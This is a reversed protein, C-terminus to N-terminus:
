FGFIKQLLTLSLTYNPFHKLNLKVQIERLSWDRSCDDEQFLRRWSIRNLHTTVCSSYKCNPAMKHFGTLGFWNNTLGLLKTSDKALSWEGKLLSWRQSIRISNTRLWFSYKFFTMLSVFQTWWNRRIWGHRLWLKVVVTFQSVKLPYVPWISSFPLKLRKSFWRQQIIVFECGGRETCFM